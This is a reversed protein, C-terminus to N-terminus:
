NKQCILIKIKEDKGFIYNIAGSVIKWDGGANVCGFLNPIGVPRDNLGMKIIWSKVNEFCQIMAEYDLHREKLGYRFQCYCNICNQAQDDNSLSFSFQSLKKIDGRETLMDAQAARPYRKKIELALGRGMTNFCNCCQLITGISPDFLDINKTEVM